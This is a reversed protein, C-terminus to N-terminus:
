EKYIVRDTKTQECYKKELGLIKRCEEIVRTGRLSAGAETIGRDAGIDKLLRGDLWYDKFFVLNDPSLKQKLLKLIDRQDVSRTDDDNRCLESGIRVFKLPCTRRLKHKDRIYDAMDSRAVRVVHHREEYLRNRESGRIWAENVLEDTEQDNSWRAYRAAIRPLIDIIDNIGYMIKEM